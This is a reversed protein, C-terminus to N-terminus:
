LEKLDKIMDKFKIMKDSMKLVEHKYEEFLEASVTAYNNIEFVQKKKPM